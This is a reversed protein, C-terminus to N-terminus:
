PAAALANNAPRVVNYECQLAQFVTINISQKKLYSLFAQITDFDELDKTHGIAVIPQHSEPDSQDAHRATEITSVLETLTMRCFDFKLPHYFRALDLLRDIRDRVSKSGSNAKYQLSLRKGTAMKWFPVMRTYVPIELLPGSPDAVNVDDSFNWYYGNAMAPRYDLKHKRQRGGKYVSSDIKIGHRTLARAIKETPQLLWNGARFSLPAFNPAELINRLYEISDGVIQNIRHEPLTCLNYETYDLDWKKNRYRANCWQPHLHLGIEFGEEYFERLQRKVDDIAPDTRLTDIKKLEAAEVFVVFKANARDFIAKLQKAPQYVLEKLSGEGNGYIEYDITFICELM